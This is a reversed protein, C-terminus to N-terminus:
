LSFGSDDPESSSSEQKSMSKLESNMLVYAINLSVCAVDFAIVEITANEISKLDITAGTSVSQYVFPLYKVTSKQIVKKGTNQKISLRTIKNTARFVKRTTFM